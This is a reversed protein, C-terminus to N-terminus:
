PGTLTLRYESSEKRWNRVVIRYIGSSSLENESIQPDYGYSGATVGARYYQNHPPLEFEDAMVQEGSPAFLELCHIMGEELGNVSITVVDGREGHFVWEHRGGGTLTGQRTQHYEIEDDTATEESTIRDGPIVTETPPTTSAGSPVPEPQPTTRCASCGLGALLLTM